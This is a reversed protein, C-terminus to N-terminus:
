IKRFEKIHHETRSVCYQDVTKISSKFMFMLINRFVENEPKGNGRLDIGRCALLANSFKPALQLGMCLSVTHGKGPETTGAIYKSIETHEIDSLDGLEEISLKEKARLDNLAEGFSENKIEELMAPVTVNCDHIAEIFEASNVEFKSDVLDYESYMIDKFSRYLAAKFAKDADPYNYKVQVTFKVCCEDVHCLAYDTLILEGDNNRKIYRQSNVCLHNEVFLFLGDEIYGTLQPNLGVVQGLNDISITFTEDKKLAGKKFTYPRVYHGDVYNKVGEVETYGLDMLRKRVSYQTVGYFEALDNIIHRYKIATEYINYEKLAEETNYLFTEKPMLICPAIGNAHIEAWKSFNIPLSGASSDITDAYYKPCMGASQFKAFSYPDQHLYLHVIEHAITINEAGPSYANVRRDVLITNKKVPLTDDNLPYGTTCFFELNFYPADADEFFAMGMIECDQDIFSRKLTFRMNQALVDVNVPENYRLADPYYYELIAHAFFDYKEKRICPFLNGDYTMVDKD